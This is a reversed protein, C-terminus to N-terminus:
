SHQKKDHRIRSDASLFSNIEAGFFLLCIVVFMWFMLLVIAGLSGYMYSINRFYTFYISFLYSLVLWGGAAFLAGPYHRRVTTTRGPMVRYVLMFGSFLFAFAILARFGLIHSTIRAIMPLYEEILRQIADGLILLILSLLFLLLFLFTFWVARLRKRPYSSQNLNGYIKMIGNEIAYVGASASWLAMAATISLVASPATIYLNDTVSLILYRFQPMDPAASILTSEVTGKDLGPIFQIATMIVMLFPVVSIIMWFTASAAFVPMEDKLFKQIIKILTLVNKMPSDYCTYPPFAFM